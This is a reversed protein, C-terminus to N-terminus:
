IGSGAEDINKSLYEGLDKLIDYTDRYYGYMDTKVKIGLGELYNEAISVKREEEYRDEPTKNSAIVTDLSTTNNANSLGFLKTFRTCATISCSGHETASTCFLGYKLCFKM